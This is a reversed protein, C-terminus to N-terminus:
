CFYVLCVLTLDRFFFFRQLRVDHLSKTEKRLMLGNELIQLPCLAFYFCRGVTVRLFLPAQQMTHIKM